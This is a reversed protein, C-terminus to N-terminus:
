TLTEAVYALRASEARLEAAQFRLRDAASEFEPASRGATTAMRGALYGFAIGEAVAGGVTQNAFLRGLERALEDANDETIFVWGCAALAARASGHERAVALAMAVSAAHAHM